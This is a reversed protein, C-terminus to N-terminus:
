LNKGTTFPLLGFINDPGTNDACWGVTDDESFDCYTGTRVADSQGNVEEFLVHDECHCNGNNNGVIPDFRKEVLELEWRCGELPPLYYACAINPQFPERGQWNWDTMLYNKSNCIKDNVESDTNIKTDPCFEDM